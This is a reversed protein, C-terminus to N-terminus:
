FHLAAPPPPPQTHEGAAVTINRRQVQAQAVVGNIGLLATLAWLAVALRM